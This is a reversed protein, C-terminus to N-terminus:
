LHTSLIKKVEIFESRMKQVIESVMKQYNSDVALYELQTALDSLVDAGLNACSSRMEHAVQKIESQSSMGSLKTLKTETSPLFLNILEKLVEGDEDLEFLEQIKEPNITQKM